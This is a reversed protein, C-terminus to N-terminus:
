RGLPRTLQYSVSIYERNADPASSIVPIGSYSQHLHTYGFEVNLHESIPHQVSVSESVTHGGPNSVALASSVNETIAYNGTAGITWTRAILHRVFVDASNAYYAGVLGGGGSVIRSYSAAFSSRQGQWGMSATVAPSWSHITTVSPQFVEFHQPGGSLSLSLNPKLYITFFALISHTQTQSEAENQGNPSDGLIDSYEYTAGLYQTKALRHSYFASGGRSNSDSLGASQDPDLYHLTAFMGSGGIMDNRSFQYALEANATNNLQDALPAVVALQASQASGSIAGGSLPYPQNFINSSKRLGDRLSLTIHPSLRYQFDLSLNQDQENRVSTHQYFTFGPSYTLTQHLRPTTQDLSITPWLSYSTDSVPSTGAASVYM